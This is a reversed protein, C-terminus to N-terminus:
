GKNYSSVVSLCLVAQLATCRSQAVEFPVIFIDITQTMVRTRGM